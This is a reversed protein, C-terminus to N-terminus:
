FIMEYKRINILKVCHLTFILHLQWIIRNIIFQQLLM